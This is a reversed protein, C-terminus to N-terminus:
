STSSWRRRTTQTGLATGSSIQQAGRNSRPYDPKGAMVVLLNREAKTLYEAYKPLAEASDLLLGYVKDVHGDFEKLAALAEQKPM